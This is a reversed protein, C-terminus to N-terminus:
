SGPNLGIFKTSTIRLDGHAAYNVQFAILQPLQSAQSSARGTSEDASQCVAIAPLGAGVNKMGSRCNFRHLRGASTRSSGAM